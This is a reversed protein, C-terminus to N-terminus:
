ETIDLWARWFHPKAVFYNSHVTNRSDSVLDELTDPYGLRAFFKRSTEFLGPHEADGHVSVNLFYASKHISPSFLFVETDPPALAIRRGVDLADLNTKIRFKPSFFGYYADADLPENVLFNRIPWYEYWDPRLNASNDLVEFGPDLDERRTYHNLIQYIHVAPMRFAYGFNVAGRAAGAAGCLAGSLPGHLPARACACPRARGHLPAAAALRHAARARAGLGACGGCPIRDRWRAGSRPQRGGALGCVAVSRGHVAAAQLRVQRAGM